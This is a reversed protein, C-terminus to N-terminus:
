SNTDTVKLKVAPGLLPVTYYDVNASGGNLTMIAFCNDYAETSIGSVQKRSQLIGTTNWSPMASGKLTQLGAAAKYAQQDIFVPVASAGVCRGRKLGM